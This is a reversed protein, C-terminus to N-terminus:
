PVTNYLLQSVQESFEEIKAKPYTFLEEFQDFFLHVPVQQQRVSHAKVWYWFSDEGPLVTDLLATANKDLGM